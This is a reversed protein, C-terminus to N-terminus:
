TILCSISQAYMQLVYDSNDAFRGLVGARPSAKEPEPM